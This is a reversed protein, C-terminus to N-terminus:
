RRSSRHVVALCDDTSAGWLWRRDGRAAACFAVVGAAWVPTLLTLHYTEVWAPFKPLIWPALRREIPRLLSPNVKDAGAFPRNTSLRM